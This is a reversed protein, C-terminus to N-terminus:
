CIFINFKAYLIFFLLFLIYKLFSVKVATNHLTETGVVFDGNRNDPIVNIKASVEIKTTNKNVGDGITVKKQLNENNTLISKVSKYNSPSGNQEAHKKSLSPPKAGPLLASVNINLNTLNSLKKQENTKVPSIIKSHVNEQIEKESQKVDRVAKYGSKNQLTKKGSFLEEDSDINLSIKKNKPKFDVDIPPENDFLGIGFPEKSRGASSAKSLDQFFDPEDEDDDFLTIRKNNSGSKKSNTVDEFIDAPPEDEFLAINSAAEEYLTKKREEKVAQENPDIKKHHQEIINTNLIEEKNVPLNTQSVKKASENPVSSRYIPDEFVGVIKTKYNSTRNLKTDDTSKINNDQPTEKEHISKSYNTKSSLTNTIDNKTIVQFLDDDESEDFINEIENATKNKANINKTNIQEDKNKLPNELKDIVKPSPFKITHKEEDTVSINHVNEAANDLNKGINTINIKSKEPLMADKTSVEYTPLTNTKIEEIDKIDNSIKVNNVDPRTSFLDSEDEFIDIVKISKQSSILTESSKNTSKDIVNKYEKAVTETFSELKTKNEPDNLTKTIKYEDNKILSDFIDENDSDSFLSFKKPDIKNENKNAPKTSSSVDFDIPPEDDFLNFSRQKASEDVASTKAFINSEYNIEDDDDEFLKIKQPVKNKNPTLKNIIKNDPKFLDDDIDSLNNKVNEIKKKIAGKSKMSSSDIEPPKDSFIGVVKNTEIASSKNQNGHKIKSTTAFLDDDSDEDEFLNTVKSVNQSVDRPSIEPPEEDFLNIAKPKSIDQGHFIYSNKNTVINAQAKNEFLKEDEEIDSDFLDNKKLKDKEYIDDLLPPGDNFLIPYNYRSYPESKDTFVNPASRNTNPIYDESKQLFTPSNELIKDNSDNTLHSIKDDEEESSHGLNGSFQYIELTNCM